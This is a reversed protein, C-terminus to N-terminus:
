VIINLGADFWTEDQSVGYECFCRRGRSVGTVVMVMVDIVMVVVAAGM